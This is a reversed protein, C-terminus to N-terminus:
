RGIRPVLVTASGDLAADLTREADGDLGVSRWGLEALEELARSLNVVRAVPVVDPPGRPPRPWPAPSRPRIATRCWWGARASPPPRACSRGRHEAPRDGPRADPDRRARPQRDDGPGRGGAARGAPRLGPAGAGPPLLAAIERNDLTEAQARRGDDPAAAPM